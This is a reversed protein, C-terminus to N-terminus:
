FAILPLIDSSSFGFKWKSYVHKSWVNFSSLFNSGFFADWIFWIGTWTILYFISMTAKKICWVKLLEKDLEVKEVANFYASTLGTRLFSSFVSLQFSYISLYERGITLMFYSHSTYLWIYGYKWLSKESNWHPKRFPKLAWCQKIVIISFHRLGSSPLPWACARRVSRELAKHM